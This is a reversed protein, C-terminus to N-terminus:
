EIVEDATALLTQPINLGLAKATKNRRHCRRWPVLGRSSYKALLISTALSDGPQIPASHAGDAPCDGEIIRGMKRRNRLGAFRTINGGPHAISAAFGGGIPDALIAFVIPITQTERALATIVPTTIGFIANPRMDVLEKALTGSGPAMVPAGGFNSGFIAARPGDLSRLVAVFHQTGLSRL